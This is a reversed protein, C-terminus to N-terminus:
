RKVGYLLSCLVPDDSFQSSDHEVQHILRGNEVVSFSTVPEDQGILYGDKAAAQVIM